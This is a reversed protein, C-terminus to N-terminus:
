KVYALTFYIEGVRYDGQPTPDWQSTDVWSQPFAGSNYIYVEDVTMMSGPQPTGWSNGPSPPPTAIWVFNNFSGDWFTGTSNAIVSISIMIDFDIGHPIKTAVSNNPVGTQVNAPDWKITKQYITRGDIWTGVPQEDLSFNMGGGGGGGSKSAIKVPPEAGRYQWVDGNQDLALGTTTLPGQPALAM